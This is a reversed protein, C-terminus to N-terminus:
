ADLALEMAVEGGPSPGLVKWGARRYFGEARTDPTTSLQLRRLGQAAQLEDHLRRGHGQREHAPDVFLAWINGDRRDGIAFAVVQGDVEVVWGRGFQELYDIVLDDSIPGSELRNEHVLHRVRQIDVVHARTAVRLCAGRSPLDSGPGFAIM